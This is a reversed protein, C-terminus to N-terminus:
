EDFNIHSAMRSLAVGLREEEVGAKGILAEYYATTDKELRRIADIRRAESIAQDIAEAMSTASGSKVLGELYKHTEPAVTTSIKARTASM